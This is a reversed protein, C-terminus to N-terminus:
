VGDFDPMLGKPCLLLLLFCANESSSLIFSLNELYPSPYKYKIDDNIEFNAIPDFWINLTKIHKRFILFIWINKTLSSSKQDSIPNLYVQTQQRMIRAIHRCFKDFPVTLSWSFKSFLIQLFRFYMAKM